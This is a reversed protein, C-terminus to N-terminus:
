TSTTGFSQPAFRAAPIGGGGRVQSSALINMLGQVEDISVLITKAGTEQILAVSDSPPVNLPLPSVPCGLYIGTLDALVQAYM